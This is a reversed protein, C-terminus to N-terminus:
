LKSLDVLGTVSEIPIYSTIFNGEDVEKLDPLKTKDIEVLIGNGRDRFNVLAFRAALYINSALYSAKINKKTVDKGLSSVKGYKQLVDLEEKSMGRYLKTPDPKIRNLKDVIEKLRGEPTWVLYQEVGEKLYKYFDKYKMNFLYLM